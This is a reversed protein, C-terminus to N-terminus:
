RTGRPPCADPRWGSDWLFTGNFVAPTLIRLVRLTIKSEPASAIVAKFFVVGLDFRKQDLEIQRLLRM